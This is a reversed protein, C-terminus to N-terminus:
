SRSVPLATALDLRLRAHATRLAHEVEEPSGARAFIFGPYSNGEPLPRLRQGEKATIVVDEIGPVHSAEDVGTIGRYIGDGPVPVMMVGTAGEALSMGSVEEGLAHRLLLEELSMGARFKLSRACLGGIPRAAVELMWVGVDNVRMEAHIPGHNLGLTDIAAQTAAAIAQQAEVPQRCPTVYITEEFYPGDLPDPKDFLALVQLRGHTVLGELAFERGSIFQEVQLCRDAPDRFRAIEPEALLARIRHAATLFATQDDARIVGRSGSLGLPKLVCPFTTHLDLEALNAQLDIRFFEPVALGAARFRERALNKNRSAAVGEPTHFDLGRKSAILAALHAPRDGVAVVADFGGAQAVTDASQELETFRVPVAHDGWPNELVHCRDTALTLGVGLREAAAAFERTQYGTASAVLLVRRNKMARRKMASSVAGRQARSLM